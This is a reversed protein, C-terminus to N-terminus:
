AKHDGTRRSILAAYAMIFDRRDNHHAQMTEIDRATQSCVLYTTAVLITLAMLRLTMDDPPLVFLTVLIGYKAVYMVFWGFVGSLLHIKPAQATAPHTRWRPAYVHAYLAFGAWIGILNASVDTMFIVLHSPLTPLIAAKLTALAFLLISPTRLARDLTDLM